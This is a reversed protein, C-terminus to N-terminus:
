IGLERLSQQCYVILRLATLLFLVVSFLGVVLAAVRRNISWNGFCFRLMIFYIMGIAGCGLLFPGILDHWSADSPFSINSLGFFLAVLSLLLIVYRASVQQNTLVVNM